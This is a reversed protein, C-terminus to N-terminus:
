FAAAQLEDILRSADVVSLEQASAVGFRGPLLAVLDIDKRDAIARIARVQSPTAPKRTNPRRRATSAGSQPQTGNAQPVHGNSRPHASRAEHRALEDHVAQDCAVYADRVRRQFADLDDFLLSEPLELEVGCSAGLSGFEPQGVKRSLALSLKLPMSNGGTETIRLRQNPIANV